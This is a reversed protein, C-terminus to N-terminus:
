RESKRCTDDATTNPRSVKDAISRSTGSLRVLQPKRVLTVIKVETDILPRAVKSRRDLAKDFVYQPKLTHVYKM